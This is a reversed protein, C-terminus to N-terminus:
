VLQRLDVRRHNSEAGDANMQENIESIMECWRRREAHEM